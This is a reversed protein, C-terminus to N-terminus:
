LLSDWSGWYAEGVLKDLAEGDGSGTMRLEHILFLADDRDRVDDSRLWRSLAEHAAPREGEELRRYAALMADLTEAADDTRCRELLAAAEEPTM